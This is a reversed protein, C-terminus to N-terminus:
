SQLYRSVQTTPTVEYSLIVSGDAATSLQGSREVRSWTQTAASYMYTGAYNATYWLNGAQDVLLDVHPKGACCM